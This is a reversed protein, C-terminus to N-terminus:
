IPEFLVPHGAKFEDAEMIASILSPRSLAGDKLRSVYDSLGQGDPDRGLLLRYLLTVFKADSLFATRYRTAFEDSQMMARLMLPPAMGQRRKGAWNRLGEGDAERGLLLCYGYTVQQEAAPTDAAAKGLECDRQIATMGAEDRVLTRVTDYAPKPAGPAWGGDGTKNLRVLGMVAEADPAWYTEDMLEYIHVAEVKYRGALERLRLMWRKLGEAQETDSKQSGLPHNMETVWIPRGYAAIAKFAWEPDQGYMHWVSLDWQIGDKRMREFAGLHGWGATGMAKRATPDAAMTGESLGKLVASVKAWRPGYYELAGVGGAPGWACNYQTGDDKMECAKIIAYVELENGLEWVRVTDKFQSVLAFALDYAQRRLAEPPLADLDLAPTLVPLIDIGLPAAKKILEGLAPASRLESINVRYSKLGLDTLYGLQREMTVGPYATFPHGNAGWVLEAGAPQACISAAICALASFHLIAARLKRWRAVFFM